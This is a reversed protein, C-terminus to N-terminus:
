SKQPPNQALKLWSWQQVVFRPVVAESENASRIRKQPVQIRTNPSASRRYRLLKTNASEHGRGRRWFHYHINLLCCFLAAAMAAGAAAAGVGKGDRCREANKFINQISTHMQADYMIFIMCKLM